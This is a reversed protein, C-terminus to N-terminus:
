DVFVSNQDILASNKDTKNQTNKLLLHYIRTSMIQTALNYIPNVRMHYKIM